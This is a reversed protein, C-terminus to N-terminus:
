ASREQSDREATEVTMRWLEPHVRVHGQRKMPVDSYPEVSFKLPSTPDEGPALSLDDEEAPLAIFSPESRDMGLDYSLLRARADAVSVNGEHTTSAYHIRGEVLRLALPRLGRAHRAFGGLWLHWSDPDGFTKPFAHTAEPDFEDHRAWLWVNSLIIREGTAARLLPNARPSLDVGQILLYREDLFGDERRDTVHLSTGGTRLARVHKGILGAPNEVARYEIVKDYNLSM